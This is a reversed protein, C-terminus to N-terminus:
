WGIGTLETEDIKRDVAAATIMAYILAEPATLKSTM